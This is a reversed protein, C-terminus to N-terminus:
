SLSVKSLKAILSLIRQTLAGNTNNLDFRIRCDQIKISAPSPYGSPKLKTTLDRDLDWQLTIPSGDLLKTGLVHCLTLVLVEKDEKISQLVWFVKQTREATANVDSSLQLTNLLRSVTELQLYIMPMTGDVIGIIEDQTPVNLITNGVHDSQEPDLEANKSEPPSPSPSGADQVLAPLTNGLNKFEKADKEMWTNVCHDDTFDSGTGKTYLTKFEDAVSFDDLQVDDSQSEDEMNLPNAM